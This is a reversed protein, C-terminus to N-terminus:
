YYGASALADRYHSWYEHQYASHYATAYQTRAYFHARHVIVRVRRESEEVVEAAQDDTLQWGAGRGAEVAREYAAIQASKWERLMEVPYQAVLEKQDVLYCPRHLPGGPKWHQPEGSAGDWCGM